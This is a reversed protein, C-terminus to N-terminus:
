RSASREHVHVVKGAVEDIRGSGVSLGMHDNEVWRLYEAISAASAGQHLKTFVQFACSDYEDAAEPVDSVGIPDWELLFIRKIEELEPIM